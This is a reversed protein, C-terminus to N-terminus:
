SNLYMDLKEFQKQADNIIKEDLKFDFTEIISSIQKVNLMNITSLNYSAGSFHCVNLMEEVKIDYILPIVPINFLWALVITHLRTGIVFEANSYLQIISDINGEYDYIQVNDRNKVSCEIRQSAPSDQKTNSNLLIVKKGKKTLEDVIDIIKNEYSKGFSQIKSSRGKFFCDIVSIIVFENKKHAQYGLSLVADPRHRINPLHKFYEFSAIDRFCVDNMMGFIQEMDDVWKSDSFPGFNTSLLYFNKALSIREKIWRSDIKGKYKENKFANGVIYIAADAKGIRKQLFFLIIKRIIEKIPNRFCSNSLRIWKALLKSFRLNSLYQLSGYRAEDSIVFEYQKYRSAILYIFIDDGINKEICAFLILKKM